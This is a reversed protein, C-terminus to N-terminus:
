ILWDPWHIMLCEYRLGAEESRKEVQFILFNFSNGPAFTVEDRMILRISRQSSSASVCEASTYGGRGEGLLSNFFKIFCRLGSFIPASTVEHASVRERIGACM